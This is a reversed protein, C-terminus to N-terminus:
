DEVALKLDAPLSGAKSLLKAGFDDELAIKTLAATLIETPSTLGTKEQVAKLLSSSVRGALRTAKIEGNIWEIARDHQEKTHLVIKWKTDDRVHDRDADTVIVSHIKLKSLSGTSARKIVLHGAAEGKAARQRKFSAVKGVRRTEKSIM